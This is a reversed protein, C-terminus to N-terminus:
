TGGITNNNSDIFIGPASNSLLVTGTKDTGIFNGQVVNETAGSASAGPTDNGLFILGGFGDGAVVNGAGPATGGITNDYAANGIEIGRGGVLRTGTADTCIYNGLVANGFPSSATPGATPGVQNDEILIGL